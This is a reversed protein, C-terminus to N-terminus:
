FEANSKSIITHSIWTYSTLGGGGEIILFIQIMFGCRIKKRIKKYIFSPQMIQTSWSRERKWKREKSAMFSPVCAIQLFRNWPLFSHMTAQLHYTSRRRLCLVVSMVHCSASEGSAAKKRRKGQSRETFVSAIVFVVINM